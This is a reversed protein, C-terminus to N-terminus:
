MDDHLDWGWWRLQDVVLEMTPNTLAVQCSKGDSFTVEPVGDPGVEWQVWYGPRVYDVWRTAKGVRTRTVGLRPSLLQRVTPLHGVPYRSSGSCQGHQRVAGARTLSISRGCRRCIGRPLAGM